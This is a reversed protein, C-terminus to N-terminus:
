NFANKIVNMFKDPTHRQAVKISQDSLFTYKNGDNFLDVIKKATLNHDNIETSIGNKNNSVLWYLLGYKNVIVPLGISCAQYYVGSSSTFTKEYAVSVLDSARFCNYQEDDNKFGHSIVLKNEEILNIVEKSEFYLELNTNITGAIYLIYSKDLLKITSILDEVGKRKSIDGYILIIKSDLPLNLKIRAEIKSSCGSLNIPENFFLLKIFLNSKFKQIYKYFLPDVILLNKLTKIKLLRYFLFHYFKDSRSKLGIGMSNRHFKPSMYIGLFPVKRFPSGFISIVKDCHDLTPLIVKDFDYIKNLNNFAYKIKFFMKLQYMFLQIIGSTKPSNIDSMTHVM